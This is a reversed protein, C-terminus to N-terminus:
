DLPRSQWDAMAELVRDTSASITAKSVKAGHVERRHARIDGTTMGKASLSIVKDEIETLRWQREAVIRLKTLRGLLSGESTLQLGVARAQKALERLKDAGFVAAASLKEDEREIPLDILSDVM